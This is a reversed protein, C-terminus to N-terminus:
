GSLWLLEQERWAAHVQQVSVPEQEKAKDEVIEALKGVLNMNELDERYRM